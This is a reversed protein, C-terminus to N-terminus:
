SAFMIICIFTIKELRKFICIQSVVLVQHPCGAPIYIAEGQLQVIAYPDIQTRRLEDLMQQDLYTKVFRM